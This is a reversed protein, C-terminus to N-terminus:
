SNIIVEPAETEVKQEEIGALMDDTNVVKKKKKKLKKAKGSPPRMVGDVDDLSAEFHTSTNM